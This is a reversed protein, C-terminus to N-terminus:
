ANFSSVKNQLPTYYQPGWPTRPSGALTPLASPLIGFSLLRPLDHAPRAADREWCCSVLFAPLFTRLTLLSDGPPTRLLQRPPAGVAGVQARVDEPPFRGPLSKSLTPLKYHEQSCGSPANVGCNPPDDFTSASPERGPRLAPLPSTVVVTPSSVPGSHSLTSRDRPRHGRRVRVRSRYTSTTGCSANPLPPGIVTSEGPRATRGFIRRALAVYVYLSPPLDTGGLARLRARNRRVVVTSTHRDQDPAQRSRFTFLPPSGGVSKCRRRRRSGRFPNAIGLFPARAVKIYKLALNGAWSVSGEKNYSRRRRGFLM